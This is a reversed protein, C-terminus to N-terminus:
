YYIEEAGAAAAAASVAVGDKRSARWPPWYVFIARGIVNEVPLTGWIHGDLSANRNDGLCLVRGRPVVLPGYRYNARDPENTYPEVQRRGNLYLGGRAIRVRDGEVAVVRKILAENPGIGSTDHGGYEAEMVEALRDPPRFVIVDGRRLDRQFRRLFRGGRRSVKEVALQDGVRFTPLMSESPIYRPEVVYARLLCAVAVSIGYTFIDERGESSRAWRGVRGPSSSSIRRWRM